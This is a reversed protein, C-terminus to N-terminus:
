SGSSWLELSWCQLVIRSARDASPLYRPLYRGERVALSEQLFAQLCQLPPRVVAHQGLGPSPGSPTDGRQHAAVLQTDLTAQEVLGERGIVCPAKQWSLLLAEMEQVFAVVDLTQKNQQSWRRSDRLLGLREEIRGRKEKRSWM